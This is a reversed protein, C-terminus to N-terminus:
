RYNPRPIFVGSPRTQNLARRLINNTITKDTGRSGMPQSMLYALKGKLGVYLYKSKQKKQHEAIASQMEEAHMMKEEQESYSM